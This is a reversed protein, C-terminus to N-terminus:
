PGRFKIGNMYDRVYLDKWSLKTGAVMRQYQLRVYAPIDRATSNAFAFALQNAKEWPTPVRTPWHPWKRACPIGKWLYYDITGKLRDIEALAPLRKLRAL